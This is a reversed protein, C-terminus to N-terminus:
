RVAEAAVKEANLLALAPKGIKLAEGDPRRGGAQQPSEALEIAGLQGSLGAKCVEGVPLVGGM